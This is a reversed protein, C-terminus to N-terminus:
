GIGFDSLFLLSIGLTLLTTCIHLCWFILKGYNEKKRQKLESIFVAPKLKDPSKM